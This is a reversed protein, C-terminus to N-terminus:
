LPPQVLQHLRLEQILLAQRRLRRVEELVGQDLVDGILGQELARALLVMLVNRLHQLRLKGVGDRRLGFQQGVVVGFRSKPSLGQGVPLARALPRELARGMEFGDLM